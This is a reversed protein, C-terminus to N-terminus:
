LSKDAQFSPFFITIIYCARQQYADADKEQIGLRLIQILSSISSVLRTSRRATAAPVVMVDRFVAMIVVSVLMLLSVTPMGASAIAMGMLIQVIIFFGRLRREYILFWVNGHVTRHPRYVEHRASNPQQLAQATWAAHRTHSKHPLHTGLM